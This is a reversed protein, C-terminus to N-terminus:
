NVLLAEPPRFDSLLTVFYGLACILHRILKQVVNKAAGVQGPAPPLRDM